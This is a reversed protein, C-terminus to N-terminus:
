DQEVDTDGVDILCMIKERERRELIAKNVKKGAYKYDTFHSCFKLWDEKESALKLRTKGKNKNQTTGRCGVQFVLSGSADYVSQPMAQGNLSNDLCTEVTTLNNVLLRAVDENTLILSPDIAKHNLDRTAGIGITEVGVSDQYACLSCGEEKLIHEIGAKSIHQKEKTSLPYISVVTGLVLATACKLIKM